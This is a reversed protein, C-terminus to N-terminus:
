TSPVLLEDLRVDFYTSSSNSKKPNKRSVYVTCNIASRLTEEIRLLSNTTITAQRSARKAKKSDDYMKISPRNFTGKEM